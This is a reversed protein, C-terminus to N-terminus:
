LNIELPDKGFSSWCWQANKQKADKYRNLGIAFFFSEKEGSANTYTAAYIVPLIEKYENEELLPGAGFFSIKADDGLAMLTLLLPHSLFDTHIKAHSDSDRTDLINKWYALENSVDNRSGAPSQLQYLATTNGQQIAHLILSTFERGQRVAQHFYIQSSVPIAVLPVIALFTGIFVLRMGTLTKESRAILVGSVVALALTVWPIFHFIPSFFALISFLGGILALVATPAIRDSREESLPQDTNQWDSDFISRKPTQQTDTDFLGM